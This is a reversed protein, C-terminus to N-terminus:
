LLTVAADALQTVTSVLPAPWVAVSAPVTATLAPVAAAPATATSSHVSTVALEGVWVTRAM